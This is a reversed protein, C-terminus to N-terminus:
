TTPPKATKAATKKTSATNKTVPIPDYNLFDRFRGGHSVGLCEQLQDYSYLVNDIQEAIARMTTNDLASGGERAFASHPTTRDPLELVLVGVLRLAQTRLEEVRHRYDKPKM